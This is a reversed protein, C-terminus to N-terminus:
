IIADRHFPRPANRVMEDHALRERQRRWENEYLIRVGENWVLRKQDAPSVPVDPLQVLVGDGGAIPNPLEVLIDDGARSGDTHACQVPGHASWCKGTPCTFMM